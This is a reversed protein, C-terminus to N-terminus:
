GTFDCWWKNLPKNYVCSWRDRAGRSKGTGPPGYFWYNDLQDLEAPRTTLSHYLDIALKLKPLQMIPVDGDTVAQAAGKAILLENRAKVNGAKNRQAPPVGYQVPGSVRTDEKGCYEWSHYADRAAEIHATPFHKKIVTFRTSKGGMCAQLHLTGSEGREM